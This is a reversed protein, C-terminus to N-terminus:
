PHFSHVCTTSYVNTSCSQSHRDGIKECTSKCTMTKFFFVNTKILHLLTMWPIGVLGPRVSSAGGLCHVPGHKKWIPLLGGRHPSWAPSRRGATGRSKAIPSSVRESKHQFNQHSNIRNKKNPPMQLKYNTITLQHCIYQDITM